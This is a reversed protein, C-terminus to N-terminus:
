EVKKKIKARYFSKLNFPSRFSNCLHSNRQAIRLELREFHTCSSLIINCYVFYFNDKRRPHQLFLQFHFPLSESRRKPFDFCTYQSLKEIIQIVQSNLFRENKNKFFKM